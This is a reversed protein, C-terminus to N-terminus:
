YERKEEYTASKGALLYVLLVFILAIVISWIIAKSQDLNGTLAGTSDKQQVFDFKLFYFILYVIVAVVIFYILYHVFDRKGWSFMKKTSKPERKEYVVEDVDSADRGDVLEGITRSM